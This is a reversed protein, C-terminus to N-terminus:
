AAQPLRLWPSRRTRARPAGAHWRAVRAVPMAAATLVPQGHTRAWGMARARRLGCARSGSSRTGERGARRAYDQACPATCPRERAAQLADYPARPRVTITRRPYRQARTWPSRHRGPRGDPRSGTMTSVANDRHDIAPSWSIRSQDAPCPAYPQDWPLVLPSVECGGAVHAPWRVAQRTPGWRAGGDDRQSPALREAERYGTAVLPRSPLRAQEPLSAHRPATVPSADVPASTTEGHTRLPPLGADCPEPLPVTDGGGQPMHQRADHAEPDSPARGCPAAPPSPDHDRGTVGDARPLDPQGWSPRLGAVAPLGRRAAPATPASVARWLPVGAAGM